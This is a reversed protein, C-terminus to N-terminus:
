RVCCICYLMIDNFDKFDFNKVELVFGWLMRFYIM